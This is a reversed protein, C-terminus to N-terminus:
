ARQQPNALRHNVREDARADVAQRDADRAAKQQAQPLHAAHARNAADRQLDRLAVQILPQGHAVAVLEVHERLEDIVHQVFDLTQHVFHLACGVADGVVQARRERMDARQERADGLAGAREVVGVDVAYTSCARVSVSERRSRKGRSAACRRSRRASAGRRAEAGDVHAREDAFQALQLSGSASRREIWSSRGREIRHLRDLAVAREQELRAAVQEVARDLEGRSPPMHHVDLQGLRGNPGRSLMVSLPM